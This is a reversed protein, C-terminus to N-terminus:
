FWKRIMDATQMLATEPQLVYRRNNLMLVTRDIYGAAEIQACIAELPAEGDGFALHERRGDALQVRLVGNEQRLADAIDIGEDALLGADVALGVADDLLSRLLLLKELTDFHVCASHLLGIQVGENKACAIIAGLTDVAYGLSQTEAQDLLGSGPAVLMTDIQMDSCLCICRCYYNVTARRIDPDPSAPNFPYAIGEPLFSDLYFGRSRIRKALVLAQGDSIYEPHFHAVQGWLQINRFGANGITNLAYDLSNRSFASTSVAFSSLKM